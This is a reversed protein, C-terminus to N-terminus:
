FYRRLDMGRYLSAVEEAYGNFPLTDIRATFMSGGLRREKAQSWRPHAVEPNVNAWFGYESAQLDEWYSRPRKDTFNFRVISKIHKFGYKWPVALRIPAGHQKAVPKLRLNLFGPGAIDVESLWRQGASSRLLAQQISEAVERPPRGLPKALQMAATVAWDGHSAVKPTEFRAKDGSGESLSELAQALAALLEQQVQQM